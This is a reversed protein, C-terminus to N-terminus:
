SLERCLAIDLRITVALCILVGILSQYPYLNMVDKKVCELKELKVNIVM